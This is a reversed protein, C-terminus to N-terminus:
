RNARKVVYLKCDREIHINKVLYIKNKRIPNKENANCCGIKNGITNRLYQCNVCKM